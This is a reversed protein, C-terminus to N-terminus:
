GNSYTQRFETPTYGTVKKFQKSFTATDTYGLEIAVEKVTIDSEALLSQSTRIRQNLIFNGPSIGYYEQFVKRYKEYGMAVYEAVEEVTLRKDIHDKIFAISLKLVEAEDSTRENIRDLYTARAALEIAKPLLLPLEAGNQADLERHIGLFLQIMEFDVGTKLVPKNGNIVSAKVLPQYIENSICLYLESYDDDLILHSHKRGPIRQVFDGAELNITGVEDDIYQATGSLILVMDANNRVLNVLDSKHAKKRVYGCVLMGEQGEDSLMRFKHWGNHMQREIIKHINM